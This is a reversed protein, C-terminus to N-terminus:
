KGLYARREPTDPFGMHGADSLCQALAALAPTNDYSEASAIESLASLQLWAQHIARIAQAPDLAGLTECYRETDM